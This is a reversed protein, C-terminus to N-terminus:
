GPCNRGCCRSCRRRFRRRSGARRERRSASSAAPIPSSIPLTAKLGTSRGALRVRQSCSWPRTGQWDTTRKCNRTTFTATGFRLRIKLRLYKRTAPVSAPRPPAHTAVDDEHDAPNMRSRKASIPRLTGAAPRGRWALGPWDAAHQSDSTRQHINGGILCRVDLM